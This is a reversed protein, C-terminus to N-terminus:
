FRPTMGSSFTGEPYHSQWTCALVATVERSAVCMQFCFLVESVNMDEIHSEEQSWSLPLCLSLCDWSVWDWQSLLQKATKTLFVNKKQFYFSILSHTKASCWVGLSYMQIGSFNASVLWFNEFGQKGKKKRKQKRKGSGYKISIKM